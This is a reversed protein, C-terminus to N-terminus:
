PEREVEHQDPRQEDRCERPQALLTGRTLTFESDGPRSASPSSIPMSGRSGPSASARARTGTVSSTTCIWPSTWPPTYEVRASVTHEAVVFAATRPSPSTANPWDLWVVKRRDIESPCTFAAACM